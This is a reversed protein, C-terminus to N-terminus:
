ALDSKELWNDFCDMLFSKVNEDKVTDFCETAFGRVLLSKAM